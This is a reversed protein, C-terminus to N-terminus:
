SEQDMIAHFIPDLKLSAIFSAIFEDKKQM